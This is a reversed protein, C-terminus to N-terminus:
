FDKPSLDYLDVNILNMEDEIPLIFRNLFFHQMFQLSLQQELLYIQLMKNLNYKVLKSIIYKFVENKHLEEKNNEKQQIKFLCTFRLYVVIRDLYTDLGEDNLSLYILYIFDNIEESSWRIAYSLQYCTRRM